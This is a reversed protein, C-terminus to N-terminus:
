ADRYGTEILYNRLSPIPCTFTGDANQHLAGNHVLHAVFDSADMGKPLQCDIQDRVKSQISRMIATITITSEKLGTDIPLEDMVAAVLVSAIKMESSRQQQYYQTRSARAERELHSWDVRSLGEIAERKLVENALAQIAFHLHRPWGDCAHVLREVQREYGRRDIGFYKCTSRLFLSVEPETLCSIDHIQLGHQLDM